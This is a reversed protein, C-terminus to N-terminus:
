ILGGKLFPLVLIFLLLGVVGRAYRDPFALGWRTLMISSLPLGLLFILPIGTEVPVWILSLVAGFLVLNRWSIRLDDAQKQAVEFLGVLPILMWLSEYSLLHMFGDRLGLYTDVDSMRLLMGTFAGQFYLWTFVALASLLAPPFFWNTDEGQMKGMRPLGALMLLLLPPAVWFMGVWLFASLIARWKGPWWIVLTWASVGLNRALMWQSPLTSLGPLRLGLFVLAGMLLPSLGLKWALALWMGGFWLGLGFRILDASLLSGVLILLGGAILQIMLIQQKSIKVEGDIYLSEGDM